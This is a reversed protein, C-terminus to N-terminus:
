HTCAGQNKNEHRLIRSESGQPSALLPPEGRLRSGSRPRGCAALRHRLTRREPFPSCINLLHRPNRGHHLWPSVLPREQEPSTALHCCGLQRIHRCLCCQMELMYRKPLLLGIYPNRIWESDVGFGNRIWESDMGFVSRIWESDMGFQLM